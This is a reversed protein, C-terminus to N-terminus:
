KEEAMARIHAICDDIGNNYTKHSHHAKIRKLSDCVENLLAKRVQQDHAPLWAMDVERQRELNIQPSVYDLYDVLPMEAPEPIHKDANPCYGTGCKPCYESM